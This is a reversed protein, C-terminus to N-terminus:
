IFFRHKLCEKSSYRIEPDINLMNYLLDTINNLQNNNINKINNKIKKYFPDYNIENIGKILGNNKFFVKKKKSKNLIKDPIKGLTSIIDIVHSRDRSLNKKKKPNFLIEGTLLEYILCGVSWIDVKEDYQYKLIVEPARYYRTQIGKLSLNNKYICSGFDALKIEVNLILRDDIDCSKEDDNSSFSEDESSCDSDYRNDSDSDNLLSNDITELIKDITKKIIFKKNKKNKKNKKKIHQYIKNFNNKNFELILEEIKKSYGKILINEPKIDTHLINVKNHICDIANLLQYSIKKVIPLPLGDTYKGKKIISYLDGALLDFVICVYEIKNEKYIFSDIMNNIYKNKFTSINKLLKIEDIGYDFDDENEIKLAYFKKQIYEYVMWVTSYVGSGIKKILIYNKELLMGSEFTEDEKNSYESYSDSSNDSSDSKYKIKLDM